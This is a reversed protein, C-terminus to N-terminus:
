IYYFGAPRNQSWRVTLLFSFFFTNPLPLLLYTKYSNKTNALSKGVFMQLVQSHHFINLINSLFLVVNSLDDGYIAYHM